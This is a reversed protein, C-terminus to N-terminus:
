PGNPSTTSKKREYLKQKLQTFNLILWVLLAYVVGSKGYSLVIKAYPEVTQYHLTFRQTYADIETQTKRNEKMNQVTYEMSERYMRMNLYRNDIYAFGCYVLAGTIAISLGGLFAPIFPLRGNYHKRKMERLALYMAIPIVGYALTALWSLWTPSYMIGTEYTINLYIVLALGAALGYKLITKLM